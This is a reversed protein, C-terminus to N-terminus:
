CHSKLREHRNDSIAIEKESMIALFGIGRLSENFPLYRFATLRARSLYEQRAGKDVNSMRLVVSAFTIATADWGAERRGSLM